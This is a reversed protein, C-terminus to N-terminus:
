RSVRAPSTGPSHNVPRSFKGTPGVEYGRPLKALYTKGRSASYYKEKRFRVNDSKVLIDQVVVEEYGKFRADAPLVEPKVQVVEERDIKLEAKKKAKHRERSKKREKESSHKSSEVPRKNAKVKPKGQEGKLRNNEDRLAQIETQADRLDASLKEILNLLRRILLRANEDRIANLDLGELM